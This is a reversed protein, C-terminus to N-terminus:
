GGILKELQENSYSRGSFNNFKNNKPKEEKDNKLEFVGKWSNMVSQELIAIAKENNGDSLKELKNKALEIARDTMPAKIKKRMDVYDIFAKNLKDNEPYYAVAKINNKDEKYEKYEKTTTIKKNNIQQKNTILTNNIQQDQYDEYKCVRIFTHSRGRKKNTVVEGSDELKKLATRVQQITLGTTDSLHKYTTAFEGRKIEVGQWRKDEWNAMLLCHIFLTVVNPNDHWEWSTFKRWLKVYGTNEIM